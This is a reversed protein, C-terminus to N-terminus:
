FRYGIGANAGWYEMGIGGEAFFFFKRGVTLGFPVVEFTPAFGGVYAAGIGLSSYLRVWKSNLYTFRANVTLSTASGSSLIPKDEGEQYAARFLVGVSTNCSLSFWKKFYYEYSFSLLPMTYMTGYKWGEGEMMIDHDGGGLALDSLFPRWAAGLRFEHHNFGIDVRSKEIHDQACAPVATGFISVAIVIFLLATKKYHNIM